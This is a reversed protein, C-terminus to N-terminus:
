AHAPKKNSAGKSDPKVEPTKADPKVEPTKGDPKFMPANADPTAAKPAELLAPKVYAPLAINAAALRAKIDAVSNATVQPMLSDASFEYMTAADEKFRISLEIAFDVASAGNKIASAVGDGVFNPLICNSVESIVEGTQANTAEFEGVLKCFSGFDSEGAKVSFVRGMITLLKVPQGESSNGERGLMAIRLLEAKGGIAEKITLKRLIKAM